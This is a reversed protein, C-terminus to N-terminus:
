VGTQSILRDYMESLVQILKSSLNYANQYKVLDLAEEDEDVGSVSTRQATISNLINEYNTQFNEAENADVAVDSIICQLFADATTNRFVKDSICLDYFDDVLNSLDKNSVLGSDEDVAINEDDDEYNATVVLNADAVLDENVIVNSATLFYYYYYSSTDSNASYTDILHTGTFTSLADGENLTVDSFDYLTSGSTYIDEAQYFAVGDEGYLDQGSLQIENYSSMFERLFGNLQQQYYPIGMYDVDGGIYASNSGDTLITSIVSDYITSSSSSVPTLYFTYTYGESASYDLTFGDYDYATGNLYITGESAMTLEDPSTLSPDSITVTNCTYTNSSADTYTYESVDTITGNFYSGNNGDRMLFLAKLSGDATSITPDFLTNTREGTADKWYIDVLNDADSQNVKNEREVCELQNYEGTDVLLSGNIWVKYNKLGTVDSAVVEETTVNVYQSLEDILLAREDRLENANEGTLEVLNIKENVEAIKKALTNIATVDTKIVENIEEQLDSLNTSMNNFYTCLSQATGVYTQRKSYEAADTNLSELATYMNSFISSFGDVTEDDQFYTQIQDLYYAKTDYNNYKANTSQYKMDYYLDRVQEIATAQVGTGLTGYNMYTRMAEAANIITEQRSYGDTRVNAINNATTNIAAQYTSLGSEGITLGFFTSAM